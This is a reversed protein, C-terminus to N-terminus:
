AYVSTADTSGNTDGPYYNAGGNATYILSLHVGYYRKGTVSYAGLSFTCGYNNIYGYRGAYAFTSFTLNGTITVTKNYCELYGGIVRYHYPSNGSITYNGIVLLQCGSLISMHFSTCAGFDVGVIRVTIKNTLDIGTAAAVKLYKIDWVAPINNGSIASGTAPSIIVNTPTDSNGQIVLNGPAAYGVVNRLTVNEAYTGDGVQITVTKGAIDLTNAITDVAKQITLFAGAASDVLGTNGDDGDTRVYYTRNATLKERAGIILRVAAASLVEPDGSGASNRGLLSATAMDAMKALTVANNSITAAVSGPGSATVDGTLNTIASEEIDEIRAKV